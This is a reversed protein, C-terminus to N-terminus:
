LCRHIYLEAVEEESVQTSTDSAEPGGKTGFNTFLSQLYLFRLFNTQEKANELMM